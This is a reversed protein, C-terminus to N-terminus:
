LAQVLDGYKLAVSTPERSSLWYLVALFLVGFLLFSGNNLWSRGREKGRKQVSRTEASPTTGRAVKVRVRASAPTLSLRGRPRKVLRVAAVLRAALRAPTFIPGGAAFSLNPAGRGSGNGQALGDIDVSVCGTAFGLGTPSRRQIRM